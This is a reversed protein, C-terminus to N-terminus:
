EDGLADEVLVQSEPLGYTIGGLVTQLVDVAATVNGQVPGVFANTMNKAAATM